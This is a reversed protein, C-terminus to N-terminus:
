RPFGTRRHKEECKNEHDQSRRWLRHLPLQCGRRIMAANAVVVEAELLLAALIAWRGAAVSVAAQGTREIAATASTRNGASGGTGTSSLASGAVVAVVAVVARIVHAIGPDTLVRVFAEASVAAVRGLRLTVV